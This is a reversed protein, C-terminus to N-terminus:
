TLDYGSIYSPSNFFARKEGDTFNVFRAMVIGRFDGFMKNILGLNGSRLVQQRVPDESDSYILAAYVKSLQCVSSFLTSLLHESGPECFLTDFTLFTFKSPKLIRSFVPTYPLVYKVLWGGIGKLAVIKWNAQRAKVGAVIRGNEKLVYYYAPLQDQELFFFTHNEYKKKLISILEPLDAPSIKSVREDYGPFLNSYPIVTFKRIKEFFFETFNLSRLNSEEVFAHYIRKDKVAAHNQLTFPFTESHKKMSEKIMSNGIRQLGPQTLNKVSYAPNFSVYRVYNTFYSSHGHNTIREALALVSILEGDKRLPFFHLPKIEDIKRLADLQRYRLGGPNGLVTNAIAEKVDPLAVPEHTISLSRYQILPEM